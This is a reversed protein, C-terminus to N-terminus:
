GTAFAQDLFYKVHDYIFTGLQQKKVTDDGRQYEPSTIVTQFRVAYAQNLM